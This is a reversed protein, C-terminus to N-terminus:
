GLLVADDGFDILQHRQAILQLLLLFGAELGVFGEDGGEEFGEGVGGDVCGLEGDGPLPDLGVEVGEEGGFGADVLEFLGDELEGDCSFENWLIRHIFGGM